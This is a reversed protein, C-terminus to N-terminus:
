LRAPVDDVQQLSVRREARRRGDVRLRGRVQGTDRDFYSLPTTSLNAKNNFVKADPDAFGKTTVMFWPGVDALDDAPGRSGDSLYAKFKGGLTAADAALQCLADAAALGSSPGSVQGKLDGGYRQSTLFM